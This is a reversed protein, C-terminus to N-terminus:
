GKRTESLEKAVLRATAPAICIGLGGHGSVLYLNKVGDVFGVSPKGTCSTPRFGVWQKIVKADALAPVLKRVKDVLFDVAQPTTSEDFGAERETTAGVIHHGDGVHIVFIGLGRLLPKLRLTDHHLILSQGKVPKVVAAMTSPLLQQSWAGAALIINDAQVPGARTHVLDIRDQTISLPRVDVNEQIKVGLHLCSAKLAATLSVVNVKSTAQCKLFGFATEALAPEFQKAQESNIVQQLTVGLPNPWLECAANAAEMLKQQQQKDNIPQLRTVRQYGIDIGSLTLLEDALAPYQWLSSRQLEPLEDQKMANYPMLAGFSATTAGQGCQGKELLTIDYGAQALRLACSLGMVGGGIVLIETKHM